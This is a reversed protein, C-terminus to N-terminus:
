RRASRPKRVCGLVRFRPLAPATAPSKGVTQPLLPLASQAEGTSVGQKREDQSSKPRSAWQDVFVFAAGLALVGIVGLAKRMQSKGSIAVGILVAAFVFAFSLSIHGALRSTRGFLTLSGFFAAVFLAFLTESLVRKM